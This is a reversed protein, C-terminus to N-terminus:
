LSAILDSRAQISGYAHSPVFNHCSSQPQWRVFLNLGPAFKGDFGDERLAQLVDRQLVTSPLNKVLLSTIDQMADPHAEHLREDSFSQFCGFHPFCRCAADQM